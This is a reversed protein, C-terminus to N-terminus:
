LCKKREAADRIQFSELYAGGGTLTLFRM